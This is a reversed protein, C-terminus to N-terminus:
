KKIRVKMWDIVAFIEDENLNAGELVCELTVSNSIVGYYTTEPCNM